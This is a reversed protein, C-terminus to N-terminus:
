ASGQRSAQVHHLTKFHIFCAQMAELSQFMTSQLKVIEPGACTLPKFAMGLHRSDHMGLLMSIRVTQCTQLRQKHRQFLGDDIKERCSFQM